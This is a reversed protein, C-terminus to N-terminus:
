YKEEIVGDKFLVFFPTMGDERFNMLVVAGEPNMSEGTFFQWDDFHALITEKVFKSIKEKFIPVRAANTKELREVLAKLYDKLWLQFSKKDFSTPQLKHSYVVNIVKEETDAAGDVAEEEPNESKNGGILSEDISNTVSIMKGDFEYVIDDVVKMPYSDSCLEDKTVCCKYVKM